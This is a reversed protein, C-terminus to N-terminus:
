RLTERKEQLSLQLQTLKSTDTTPGPELMSLLENINTLMRKASAKHGAHIRKKRALGELM